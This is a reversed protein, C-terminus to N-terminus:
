FLEDQPPPEPAAKPARALPASEALLVGDWPKLYAKAQDLPCTLWGLYDKPDLIAVMRKDEGPKHMRKMLQHKDANVTLMTFTFLQQTGAPDKWRRYIGAIGLPV